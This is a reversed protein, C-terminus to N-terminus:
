DLRCLGIDASMKMRVLGGEGGVDLRLTSVLSLLREVSESPQAGVGLWYKTRSRDLKVDKYRKAEFPEEEGTEKNVVFDPTDASAPPVKPNPDYTGLVELPKSDRATRAHTLVINYLPSHRRGFRALRIRLVM